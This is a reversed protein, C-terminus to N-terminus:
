CSFSSFSFILLGDVALFNIFNVQNAFVPMPHRLKTWIVLCSVNVNEETIKIEVELKLKKEKEMEMEQHIRFSFFSVSKADAVTKKQM